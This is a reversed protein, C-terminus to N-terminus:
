ITLENEEKQQVGLKFAQGIGILFLGFYFKYTASTLIDLIDLKIALKHISKCSPILIDSIIFILILCYGIRSILKSNITTFYKQNIFADTIMIMYKLIVIFTLYSIIQLVAILISRVNPFDKYISNDLDNFEQPINIWILAIISGLAFPFLIFLIYTIRLLNKLTKM